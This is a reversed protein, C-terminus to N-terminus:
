SPHCGACSRTIRRISWTSTQQGWHLLSGYPDDLYPMSRSIGARLASSLRLPMATYLVHGPRNMDCIVNLRMGRHSHSSM